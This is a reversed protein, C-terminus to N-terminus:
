DGHSAPSSGHIGAPPRPGLSPLSDEYSQEQIPSWIWPYFTVMRPCIEWTQTNQPGVVYILEVKVVELESDGGAADQLGKRGTVGKQDEAARWGLRSFNASCQVLEGGFQHEIRHRALVVM